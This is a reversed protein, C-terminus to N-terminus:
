LSDRKVFPRNNWIDMCEQSQVFLRIPTFTISRIKFCDTTGYLGDVGWLTKDEAPKSRLGCGIWLDPGLWWRFWLRDWPSEVKVVHPEGFAARLIAKEFILDEDDSM